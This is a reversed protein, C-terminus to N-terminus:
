VLSYKAFMEKVTDRDNFMLVDLISLNSIFENNYQKYTVVESQVFSLEVGKDKFYEKDYLKRGGIANVYRCYKNDRSIKIIRDAKDMGKTQPSFVSSRAYKIEKDLYRYVALVSDIALDSINDCDKDIVSFVMGSIDDYFPAKKYASNILRFLKNKYKDDISPVIENILKNQSAKLVPITILFRGGNLLINNRNIWGKKIFNVDDYFVMRDSAEILHFYGLYPFIYPQNIALMGQSDNMVSVESLTMLPRKDASYEPASDWTNNVDKM